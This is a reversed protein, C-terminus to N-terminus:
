QGRAASEHEPCLTTTAAGVVAGAQTADMGSGLMTKAVLATTAGADFAGCVSEGLDTLTSDDVAELAPAVARATTLFLDADSLGPGDEVVATATQSPFEPGEPAQPSTCAALPACLAAALVLGALSKPITM